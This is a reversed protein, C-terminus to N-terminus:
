FTPISDMPHVIYDAARHHLRRSDISFHEFWRDPCIAVFAPHWFRKAMGIRSTDHPPITGAWCMCDTRLYNCVCIKWYARYYIELMQNKTNPTNKHYRSITAGVPSWTIDSISSIEYKDGGAGNSDCYSSILGSCNQLPSLRGALQPALQIHVCLISIGTFAITSITSTSSPLASVIM